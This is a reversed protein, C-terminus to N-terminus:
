RCAGTYEVTVGAGAAMCNNSYTRGDCGCVPAYQQTCMEPKRACTGSADSRGCNASAPFSCYEGEACPQTGRGGCVRGVTSAPACAGSARVSVGNSAATCANSYTTGDCGCVPLYERTCAQPKVACVGPIDTEGCSASVPRNCFEGEACPAMGRSGCSNGVTSPAVVKRYFESATVISSTTSSTSAVLIGTANSAETMAASRDAVSALPSTSALRLTAFTRTTTANLKTTKLTPCPTTICVIGSPGVRYFAGNPKAGSAGRWAASVKLTATTAFNATPALTGELIGKGSELAERAADVGAVARYDFAGVYCESRSVGDLCRTTAQNVAKVYVGGCLPSICKRYDRRTVVYAKTTTLADDADAVVEDGAVLEADEPAASCATLLTSFAALAAFSFLSRTTM